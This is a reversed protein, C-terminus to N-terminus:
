ATAHNNRVVRTPVDFAVGGPPMRQPLPTGLTWGQSRLFTDFGGTSFIDLLLGNLAETISQMLEGWTRGHAALHLSDCAGIWRDSELDRFARWGVQASMEIRVIQVM